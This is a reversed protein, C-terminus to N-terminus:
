NHVVKIMDPSAAALGTFSNKLDDPSPMVLLYLFIFWSYTGYSRCSIFSIVSRFWLFFMDFLDFHLSKSDDPFDYYELLHVDIGRQKAIDRIQHLFYVDMNNVLSNHLKTFIWYQESFVHLVQLRGNYESVVVLCVENGLCKRYSHCGFVAWVKGSM